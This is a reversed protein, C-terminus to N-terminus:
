VGIEEKEKDIQQKAVWAPAIALGFIVVAQTLTFFLSNTGLLIDFYIGITLLVFSIVINLQAMQTFLKINLIFGISFYGLSILFLWLLMIVAYLQYIAFITTSLIAFLAIMLFNQTIFAQRKTSEEIEYDRNVRKTMNHEIVFGFLIFSSLLTTGVVINYEYAPVMGLTLLTAIIAWVYCANYNYPFFTERDILHNKIESIQQLVKEKESM